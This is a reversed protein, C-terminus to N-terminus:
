SSAREACAGLTPPPFPWLDTRCGRILRMRGLSRTSACMHHGATAPAQLRRPRRPPSPPATPTVTAHPPSSTPCTTLGRVRRSAATGTGPPTATNGPGSVMARIQRRRLPRPHHPRPLHCGPCRRHPGREWATSAAATWRADGSISTLHSPDTMRATARRSTHPPRARKRARQSTGACASTPTLSLPLVTHM